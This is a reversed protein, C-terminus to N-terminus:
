ATEDEVRYVQCIRRALSVDAEDNNRTLGAATAAADVISTFISAYVPYTYPGPPWGELLWRLYARWWWPSPESLIYYSWGYQAPEGSPPTDTWLGRRTVIAPILRDLSASNIQAETVPM